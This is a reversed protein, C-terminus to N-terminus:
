KVREKEGKRGEQEETRRFLSEGDKRECLKKEEKQDEKRKYKRMYKDRRRKKKRKKKGKRQLIENLTSTKGNYIVRNITKYFNMIRTHQIREKQIFM